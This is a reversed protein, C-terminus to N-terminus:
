SLMKDRYRNRKKYLFAAPVGLFCPIQQVKLGLDSCTM